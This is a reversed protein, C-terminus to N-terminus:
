PLAFERTENRAWGTQGSVTLVHNWTIGDLSWGNSWGVINTFSGNDWSTAMAYSPNPAASFMYHSRSQGLASTTAIGDFCFRIAAGGNTESDGYSVGGTCLNSGGSTARFGLNGIRNGSTLGSFQWFRASARGTAKMPVVAFEQWEQSVTWLPLPGIPECSIWTSGGDRSYQPTIGRWMRAPTTTARLRIAGISVDAAFTYGVQSLSVASPQWQLYTAPNGDFLNAVALGGGTGIRGFSSGGVCLNPGGPNAAMEIEAIEAFTPNSAGPDCGVMVLRWHQARAGVGFRYPNVLWTM